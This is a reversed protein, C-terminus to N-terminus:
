FEGVVEKDNLCGLRYYTDSNMNESLFRVSGDCLAAHVGGEHFSYAQFQNNCNMICPGPRTLGDSSYNNIAMAVNGAWVSYFDFGGGVVGQSKGDIFQQPRGAIELILITNSPGDVVDRM